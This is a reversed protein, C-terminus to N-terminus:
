IRQESSVIGGASHADKHHRKGSEAQLFIAKVSFFVGRTKCRLYQGQKRSHFIFIAQASHCFLPLLQQFNSSITHSVDIETDRGITWPHPFQAAALTPLPFTQTMKRDCTAPLINCDPWEKTPIAAKIGNIVNTIQPNIRSCPYLCGLQSSSWLIHCIQSNCSRWSWVSSSMSQGGGADSDIPKKENSLMTGAFM